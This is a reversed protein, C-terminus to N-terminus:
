LLLKTYNVIDGAGMMVIVTPLKYNTIPLQNLVQKLNKPSPLYFVNKRKKAIAEALKQSTFGTLSGSERRQRSPPLRKSRSIELPTFQKYVKDRGAVRYIPLLILYDADNFAKVFDKFLLRLREAQHPQFVCIIKSKPYKEKFASLTAKIETPHHAYDDYVLIKFKSNQIKFKGKYEMRRWAGRYSRFAKLITKEKIGLSRSLMHVAMANSLNHKGPIKLVKKIRHSAPNKLSYWFLNLKKNEAIKTIQRKLNYLNKDDKNLIATGGTKVNGIFKLFAKKVNAFNKYYDLHEKDINTIVTLAPSYNLFSEHFEDAEIILWDGKGNRFNTGGFEKLKTGIIVTPDFGARTLVLSALATVTSKGHAGAIAITKYKRSLRGLAQPYSLVPIGLKKAALLEPNNAPIAQNYIVLATKPSLYAKKHGIKVKVGLKKLEQLLDSPAIDSGSIAWKQTLFWRALASIGIGGIGIFHVSNLRKILHYKPM